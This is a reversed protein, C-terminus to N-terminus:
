RPCFIFMKRVIFYILDIIASKLIIPDQPSSNIQLTISDNGTAQYKILKGTIKVEQAFISQAIFLLSLISLIRKM